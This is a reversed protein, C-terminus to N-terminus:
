PTKREVILRTTLRHALAAATHLELHWVPQDQGDLGDLRCLVQAPTWQPQIVLRAHEGEVIYTAGEQRMPYRSHLHFAVAGTQPLAADDEILFDDPQQSVIRRVCRTFQGGWLASVDIEAQMSVADGRGTPCIHQPAPNIQHALSGDALVPTLLNHATAYKLLGTRAQGYFCIGRDLALIDGYAELVFSSKDEHSHGCNRPAGIFQLRVVGDGSPRCSVLQSTDPLIRFVPVVPDAGDGTDAGLALALTWGDVASLHPKAGAAAERELLTLRDHLLRTWRPDPLYRAFLAVSELDLAPFCDGYPVLTGPPATSAVASIFDISRRLQAPLLEEVPRQLRRAMAVLPPMGWYANVFFYGPPEGYGGDELVTAAMARQLDRLAMDLYDATRPWAQALALLGLIRGRSFIVAQNCHHIYEHQLFDHHIPPLGKTAIAHRIVTRGQETLVAGAWDLVLACAETAMAERFCRQTWRSGPFREIVGECWHDLHSMALAYRAAMRLLAEDQDILGVFACIYAPMYMDPQRDRPRAYRGGSGTPLFQRVRKEPEGRLFGQAAERLGAMLTAYGPQAARARMAPLDDAGFLLGLQPTFPATDPVTGSGAPLLLGPWELTYPPNAERQLLTQLRTSDALGFWCLWGAGPGDASPTIRVRMGQLEAGHLAATLEVGENAGAAERIATSWVGDVCVDVSLAVGFPQGCSVILTDYGALPVRCARELTLAPVGPTARDWETTAWCWFQTVRGNSRPAATVTWLKLTSIEPDWLPEFIAEAENIAIPQM